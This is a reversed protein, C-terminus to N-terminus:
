YFIVPPLISNNIRNPIGFNLNKFATPQKDSINTTNNSNVNSIFNRREFLNQQRFPTVKVPSSDTNNNNILFLREDFVTFKLLNEYHAFFQNSIKNVESEDNIEFKTQTNKNKAFIQLLSDKAIDLLILDRNEVIKIDELSLNVKKCLITKIRNYKIQNLLYENIEQNQSVLEEKLSKIFNQPFKDNDIDVIIITVIVILM